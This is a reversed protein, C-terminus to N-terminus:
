DLIHNAIINREFAGAGSVLTATWEVVFFRGGKNYGWGNSNVLTKATLLTTIGDLKEHINLIQTEQFGCDDLARLTAQAMLDIPQTGPACLGLQSEALGVIAVSGRHLGSM